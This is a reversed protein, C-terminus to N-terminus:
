PASSPRPEVLWTTTMDVTGSHQQAVEQKDVQGLYNKGLFILMHVNGAEAVAFQKRRLSITQTASGADYAEAVAPLKAFELWTDHCVRFFRACERTTTQLRGLGEVQQLTHADAKLKKPRGLKAV